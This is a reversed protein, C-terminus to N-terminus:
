KQWPFLGKIKIEEKMKGDIDVNSPALIFIDKSVKQINGDLSYIAGNLFEFVQRKTENELYELNVVVTKRNKLEDIIRPSDEYSRPEYIVLKMQSNTHINVVRSGKYVKRRAPLDIHNVEETEELQEMEDIEEELDDLGIIYKVKDLLKSSM